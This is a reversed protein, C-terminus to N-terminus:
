HYVEHDVIHDVLVLPTMRADAFASIRWTKQKVQRGPLYYPASGGTIICSLPWSWIPGHPWSWFFYETIASM